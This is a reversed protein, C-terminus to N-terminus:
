RELAVDVIAQINKPAKRYARLFAMDKQSFEPIHQEGRGLIYDLSCGFVDVIRELEDARAHRTGKEIRNLVARNMQLRKALETQTIDLCERLYVIRESLTM